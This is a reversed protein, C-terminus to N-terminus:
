FKIKLSVSNLSSKFSLSKTKDLKSRKSLSIILLTAFTTQAMGSLILLGKAGNYDAMPDNEIIGITIFPGIVPILTYQKFPDGMIVDGIVTAGYTSVLGIASFKTWNMNQDTKAVMFVDHNFTKANFDIQTLSAKASTTNFKILPDTLDYKLDQTQAHLVSMGITLLHIATLLLKNHAM